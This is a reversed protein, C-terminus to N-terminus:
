NLSNVNFEEEYITFEEIAFEKETIDFVEINGETTNKYVVVKYFRGNDYDFEQETSNESDRITDSEYNPIPMEDVELVVQENTIECTFEITLGSANINFSKM